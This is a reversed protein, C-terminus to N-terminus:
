KNSAPSCDNLVLLSLENSAAGSPLTTTVAEYGASVVEVADALWVVVGSTSDIASFMGWGPNHLVKRDWKMWQNTSGEIIVLQPDKKRLSSARGSFVPV